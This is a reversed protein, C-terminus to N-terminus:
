IPEPVSEEIATWTTGDGYLSDWHERLEDLPPFVYNYGRIGNPSRVRQPYGAPCVSRLFMGLKITSGRRSVNYQVCARVYDSVLEDCPVTQELRGNQLRELWWEQMPGLSHMKQELLARTAPVRRVDYGGLDYTMLHHLLAERGGHGMADAINRFYGIDRQHGEGVDLVFFRREAAGMPVVWESNSALILHIFNPGVEADVGKHEIIMSEETILTKLVSEHKKDGAFFAEDGFLLVCDRLHANFSGVLHKADSVHVFHRGWLSGFWKAYFSKGTGSKGRLVVATEGPADPKQVARAMWGILYAYHTENGACINDLVHALFPEHRDGPVPACGFGQWLNYANPVEGSPSFVLYDYQRRKPHTLWWNGLQMRKKDGVEVYENAYRNKFDAFSQKTLRPRRLAADYVEEVVKCKGGMNGIVVFKENMRRLNPDEVEDHARAIQRLAYKRAHNGKDVVSTSIGFDPDTVVSFITEDPVGARVLQCCVDFLWASRSNDGQKPNDPDHGQVVVVKVRDPVRWQSLEDVSGLRKVADPVVVERAGTAAEQARIPTFAGLEYSAEPAYSYVEAQTPTRGREVKKADPLNTTGPLRMVRDVNWCNDGGLLLELQRNYPEVRTPDDVIPTRLRWFAQYGGGSFVVFTPKPTFAVLLKRIREFEDAPPEGVRADIDVHLFVAAAIDSKQAKKALPAAPLNVTFYLNRKGNHKLVWERAPEVDVRPDFTATEIHKKDVTISTLVWYRAPHFASLFSIADV